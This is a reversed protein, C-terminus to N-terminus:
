GPPRTLAELTYHDQDRATGPLLFRQHSSKRENRGDGRQKGVRTPPTAPVVRRDRGDATGGPAMLPVNRFGATTGIRVLMVLVVVTVPAAAVAARQDQGLPFVRPGGCRGKIRHPRTRPLLIRGGRRGRHRPVAIRGNGSGPVGLRQVPQM